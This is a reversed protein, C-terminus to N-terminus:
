TKTKKGPYEPHNNSVSTVSLPNYTSLNLSKRQKKKKLLGKLSFLTFVLVKLDKLQFEYHQLNKQKSVKVDGKKEEM